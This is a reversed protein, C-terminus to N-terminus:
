GLHYKRPTSEFRVVNGNMEFAGLAANFFSLYIFLNPTRVGYHSDLHM